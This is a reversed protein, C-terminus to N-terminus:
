VQNGCKLKSYYVSESLCTLYNVFIANFMGFARRIIERYGYVVYISNNFNKM